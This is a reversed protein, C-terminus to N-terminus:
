MMEEYVSYLKSELSVILLCNLSRWTPSCKRSLLHRKVIKFGNSLMWDIAKCTLKVLLQLIVMVFTYSGERQFVVIIFCVVIADNTVGYVGCGSHRCRINDDVHRRFIDHRVSCGIRIGGIRVAVTIRKDSRNLYTLLFTFQM